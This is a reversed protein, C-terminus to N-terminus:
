QLGEEAYSRQYWMLLAAGIAVVLYYSIVRDILVVGKAVEREPGIPMLLHLSAAQFAETIGVGGPVFSVFSVLISATYLLTVAPLGIHIGLSLFVLYFRVVELVMAALSLVFLSAIGGRGTSASLSGMSGDVIRSLTGSVRSDSPLWAVFAKLLKGAQRWFVFGLLAILTLVVAVPMVVSQVVTGEVGPIFAISALVLLAVVLTDAVREVLMATTSNTLPVDYSGKAILPKAFDIAKGPVLSASAVGAYISGVSIGASMRVSSVRSIMWQWRVAKVGINMLSAVFAGVLHLLRASRLSSMVLAIDVTRVFYVFVLVGVTLLVYRIVAKPKLGRVM